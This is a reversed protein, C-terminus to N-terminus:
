KNGGECGTAAVGTLTVAAKALANGNFTGGTVTIAAGALITGMFDSTTMTAAEVVWWYVNCALAGNAM